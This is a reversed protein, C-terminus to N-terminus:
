KIKILNKSGIAINAFTELQGITKVDVFGIEENGYNIIHVRFSDDEKFHSVKIQCNGWTKVYDTIGFVSDDWEEFGNKLLIDTTLKKDKSKDEKPYCLALLGGDDCTLTENKYVSYSDSPFYNEWCHLLSRYTAYGRAIKKRRHEDPCEGGDWSHNSDPYDALEPVILPHLKRLEKEAKFRTERPLYCSANFLETQGALFRHIDESDQIVDRLKEETLEILWIRNKDPQM